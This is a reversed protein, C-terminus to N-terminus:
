CSESWETKETLLYPVNIIFESRNYKFYNIGPKLITWTNDKNRQRVKIQRGDWTEVHTDNILPQEYRYITPATVQHLQEYWYKGAETVQGEKTVLTFRKRNPARVVIALNKNQSPQSWSQFAGDPAANMKRTQRNANNAQAM